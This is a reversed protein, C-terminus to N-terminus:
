IPCPPCIWYFFDAMWLLLFLSCISHSTFLLPWQFSKCSYPLYHPPLSLIISAFHLRARSSHGKERQTQPRLDISGAQGVVVAVKVVVQLMGSSGDSPICWRCSFLANTHICESIENSGNQIILLTILSYRNIATRCVRNMDTWQLCCSFFPFAFFVFLAFAALNPSLESYFLLCTPVLPLGDIFATILLYNSHTQTAFPDLWSALYECFLDAVTNWEKRGILSSLKIQDSKISFAIVFALRFIGIVFFPWPPADTDAYSSLMQCLAASSLFANCKSCKWKSQLQQQPLCLHWYLLSVAIETRLLLAQLAWLTAALCFVSDWTLCSLYDNAVCSIVFLDFVSLLRVRLQFNCSRLKISCFLRM